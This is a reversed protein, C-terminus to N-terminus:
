LQRVQEPDPVPEGVAARLVASPPECSEAPPQSMESPQQSLEPAAHPAAPKSLTTQLNALTLPSSSSDASPDPTLEIEAQVDDLSDLWSAFPQGQTSSIAEQVTRSGEKLVQRKSTQM